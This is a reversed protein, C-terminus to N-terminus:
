IVTLSVSESVTIVDNVSPLSALLIQINETITASDYVTSQWSETWSGVISMAVWKSNISVLTIISGSAVGIVFGGASSDVPGVRIKNTGQAVIKFTGSDEIYFSYILGNTLSTILPLTVTISVGLNTFIVNSNGSAINEGNTATLVPKQFSATGTIHLSYQPNNNNIGLRVNTPDIFFSNPNGVLTGAESFILSNDLASTGIANSYLSNFEVVGNLGDLKFGVKHPSYNTSQLFGRLISNGQSRPPLPNLVPDVRDIPNADDKSTLIIAPSGQLAPANGFSPNRREMFENYNSLETYDPQTSEKPM